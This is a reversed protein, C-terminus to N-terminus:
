KYARLIDAGYLNHIKDFMFKFYFLLNDFQHCCDDIFLQESQRGAVMAKDDNTMKEEVSDHQDDSTERIPVAKGAYAIKIEDTENDNEATKVGLHKQASNEKFFFGARGECNGCDSIEVTSAHIIGVSTDCIVHPSKIALTSNDHGSIANLGDRTNVM